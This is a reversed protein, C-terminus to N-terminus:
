FFGGGGGGGGGVVVFLHLRLYFEYINLKQPFEKHM